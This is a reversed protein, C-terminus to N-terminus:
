PLVARVAPAVADALAAHGVANPHVHDGADPGHLDGSGAARWAALGDVGVADVASTLALVYEVYGAATECYHIGANSWASCHALDPDTLVHPPIVLVVLPVGARRAAAALRAFHRDFAPWDDAPRDVAEHAEVVGEVWRFLASRPRLWLGAPWRTRGEAVWFSTGGSRILDTPVQDNVYAGYVIVAPRRPLVEAEVLAEVQGIDYGIVGYNVVDVGLRASLMAPWAAGAPVFAGHTVSDGVAAVWPSSDPVHSRDHPSGPRYRYKWSPPDAVFVLDQAREVWRRWGEAAGLALGTAALALLLRRV